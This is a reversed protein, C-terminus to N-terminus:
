CRAANAAGWRPVPGVRLARAAQAGLPLTSAHRFLTRSMTTSAAFM